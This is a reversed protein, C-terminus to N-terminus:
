LTPQRHRLDMHRLFYQSTLAHALLFSAGEREEERLSAGEREEERLM